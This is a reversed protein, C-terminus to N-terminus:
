YTPASLSITKKENSKPNIFEVYEPYQQFATIHHPIPYVIKYGRLFLDNMINPSVNQSENSDITQVMNLPYSLIRPETLSYGKNWLGHRKAYDQVFAELFTPNTFICKNLVNKLCNTEYLHADVSFRYGWSNNIPNESYYWAILNLVERRDKPQVDFQKGLRLSLQSITPNDRVLRMWESKIVVPKIFISDDTLFMTLEANSDSICQLTLERFNTSQQRAKPYRIMKKWNFLKLYCNMPYSQKTVQMEKLFLCNYQEKLMEYGKEFEIDSTNYIVCVRSLSDKDLYKDISNLLADLQM